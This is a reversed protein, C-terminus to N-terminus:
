KEIILKTSHQSNSSSVQLFYLRKSLEPLEIDFTENENTAYAHMFVVKGYLDIIQTNFTEGIRTESQITVKTKSPIPYIVMNNSGAKINGYQSVIHNTKNVVYYNESTSNYFFNTTEIM